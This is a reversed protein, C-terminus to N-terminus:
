EVTLLIDGTDTNVECRGGVTTKPVDIRGSDTQVIFVKDSLLSGTVYGTDTEVFIEAADSTEFRVDGTSREISFKEAAIVNKLSIDGTDGTSIVSRCTMDTLCANGTSVDIRVDGACTVGSATVKGTTVSLDLTGASVNEMRINGTSTRIKIMGSASACFDVDGTSLTIDVDKFTFDKPMKIDGTSEDILLSSYETKPLYITIEPTGFNLGIFGIFDHVTRNDIWEIALTGDKVAVSHKANEEERCVVRCEGNESPAFVIDATDTHVSIGDFAESIEYTNTEYQVTALGTFDWRLSTMVGAFLICGILVLFAAIILWTKTRTKM